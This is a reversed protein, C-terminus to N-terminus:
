IFGELDQLGLVKIITSAQAEIPKAVDLDTRGGDIM